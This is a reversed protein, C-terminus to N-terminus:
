DVKKLKMKQKEPITLLMLNPFNYPITEFETLFHSTPLYVNSPIYNVRSAM